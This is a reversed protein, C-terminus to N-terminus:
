CVLGWTGGQGALQPESSQGLDWCAEKVSIRWSIVFHRHRIMKCGTNEETFKFFLRGQEDGAGLMERDETCTNQNHSPIFPPTVAM